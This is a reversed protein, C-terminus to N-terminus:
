KGQSFSIGPLTKSGFKMKIADKNNCCVEALLDCKQEPFLNRGILLVADRSEGVDTVLTKGEM